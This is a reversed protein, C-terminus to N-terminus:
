FTFKEAAGIPMDFDERLFDLLYLAPPIPDLMSEEMEPARDPISDLFDAGL